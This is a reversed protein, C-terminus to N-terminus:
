AVDGHEKLFEGLRDALNKDLPRYVLYGDQDPLSLALKKGGLYSVFAHHEGSEGWTFAIHVTHDGYIKEGSSVSHIDWPLLNVPSPIYLCDDALDFFELVAPDEAPTTKLKYSDHYPIGSNVGGTVTTASLSYITDRDAGTMDWFSVPRSLFLFAALLCVVPIWFFKKKGM